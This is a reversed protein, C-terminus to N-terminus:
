KKKKFWGSVLKGLKAGVGSGSGAGDRKKNAHFSNGKSTSKAYRSKAHPSKRASSGADDRRSQSPHRPRDTKQLDRERDGFRAPAADRMPRDEANGHARAPRRDSREGSSRNSRDSARHDGRRAGAGAHRERGPAPRREESMIDLALDKVSADGAAAAAAGSAASKASFIRSGTHASAIRKAGAGAHGAAGHSAAKKGSSIKRHIVEAELGFYPHANDVPISRKISKEVARLLGKEIPECFSIAVGERGARATRGIRHVYSEPEHPVDYNIVHTVGPIDIGRAAIDTAVLVLYKGDRFGQLAKERATQSKNGHIAAASIGSRQLFEEVRNAMHKMKCFVLVSKVEPQEVTWKLLLPKNGKEVFYVKQDIKEVTTSQPTIEVRVPEHLISNALNAIAPPMTASFFLTQRKKPLKAIIKKIDNIFGMDLMRDAEDLVFVELSDYNVYGQNTLDLLRGPTAVVIDLGKMLATIQPNEGVGGFIVAYKLGLSKGYAEINDVIQSALERTPTLILARMRKPKVECRNKALNNLIPLAFAATKGTGTQAIGLLDKGELLHPIAQAQIPTPTTYGKSELAKLIPSILNLSQFNSM